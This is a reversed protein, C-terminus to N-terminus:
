GYKGADPRMPLPRHAYVRASNPRASILASFIAAPGRPYIVDPSRYSPSFQAPSGGPLSLDSNLCSYLHSSSIDFSSLQLAALVPNRLYFPPHQIVCQASVAVDEQTFKALEKALAEVEDFWHAGAHCCNRLAICHWSMLRCSRVRPLFSDPWAVKSNKGSRGLTPHQSDSHGVASQGLTRTDVTRKSRAEVEHSTYTNLVCAPILPCHPFCSDSHCSRL